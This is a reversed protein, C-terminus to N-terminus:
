VLLYKNNIQFKVLDQTEDPLGLVTLYTNENQQYPFLNLSILDNAWTQM